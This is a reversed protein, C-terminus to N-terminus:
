RCLGKRVVEDFCCGFLGRWSGASQSGITSFMASFPLRLEACVFTYAKFDAAFLMVCVM